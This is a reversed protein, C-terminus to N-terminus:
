LNLHHARLNQESSVRCLGAQTNLMPPTILQENGFNLVQQLKKIEKEERSTPCNRVFAQM